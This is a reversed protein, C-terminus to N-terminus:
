KLSYVYRKYDFGICDENAIGWCALMLSSKEGSQNMKITINKM